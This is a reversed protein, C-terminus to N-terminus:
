NKTISEFNHKAELYGIGGPMYKLHSNEESLTNIKEELINNKKNSDVTLQILQDLANDNSKFIKKMVEKSIIDGNQIAMLYYKIANPLDKEINYYYHALNKIAYINKGDVAMQYYKLMMDYNKLKYYYYGLNFMATINNQEIAMQYYKLINDHDKIKQYYIALNNAACLDGNSIAMQYYKMMNTYDEVQMYYLGLSNMSSSDLNDIAILYYKIMNTYDKRFKYYHGYNRLVQNSLKNNDACIINDHYLYFIIKLDNEDLKTYIIGNDEVYKKVFADM